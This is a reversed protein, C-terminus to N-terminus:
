LINSFMNCIPSSDKNTYIYTERYVGDEVAVLRFSEDTKSDWSIKPFLTVGMGSKVYEMIYFPDNCEVAIQPCRGLASFLQNFNDRLSTGEPMCVFKEESLRKLSVTNASFLPSHSGVAICLEEKLMLRKKFRDSNIVKDSIVIDFDSYSSAGRFNEHVITFSVEPYKKTFEMIAGNVRARNTLLLLRIEGSPLSSYENIAMKAKKMESECLDVANLFIKGCENLKLSNASRDFLCVGLEKELKKIAVSVSSAPVYFEKATHSINECRAVHQFYKLQLIEM